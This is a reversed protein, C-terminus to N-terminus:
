VPRPRRGMMQDLKFRAVRKEPGNPARRVKTRQLEIAAAEAWGDRVRGNVKVRRLIEAETTDWRYTM